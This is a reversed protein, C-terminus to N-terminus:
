NNGKEISRKCSKNRRKQVEEWLRAGSWAISKISISTQSERRKAPFELTNDCSKTSPSRSKSPNKSQHNTSM